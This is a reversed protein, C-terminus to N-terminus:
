QETPAVVSEGLGGCFIYSPYQKKAPEHEPNFDDDVSTLSPFSVAARMAASESATNPNTTSEAM